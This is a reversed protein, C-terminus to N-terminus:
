GRGPLGAAEVPMADFGARDNGGRRVIELLGLNHVVQLMILFVFAEPQRGSVAGRPGPAIM